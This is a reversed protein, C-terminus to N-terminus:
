RGLACRLVTAWSVGVRRLAAYPLALAAVTVLLTALAPWAASLRAGPALESSVLVATCLVTAAVWYAALLWRARAPLTRRRVGAPQLGEEALRRELRAEFGSSLHPVPEGEFTRALLADLAEPGRPKSGRGPPGENRDVTRDSTM